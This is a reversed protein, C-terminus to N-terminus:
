NGLKMYSLGQSAALERFLLFNGWYFPARVNMVKNLLVRRKDRKRALCICDMM